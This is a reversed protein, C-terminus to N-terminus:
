TREAFAVADRKYAFEGSGATQYGEADYKVAKFTSVAGRQHREITWGNVVAVEEIMAIRSM